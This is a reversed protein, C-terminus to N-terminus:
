AADTVGLATFYSHLQITRGTATQCAFGILYRGPPPLSIAQAAVTGFLRPPGDLAVEWGAGAPDAPFFLVSLTAAELRDDPALAGGLAIAFADGALASLPPFDRGAYGSITMPYLTRRPNLALVHGGSGLGCVLWSAPEGAGLGCDIPWLPM